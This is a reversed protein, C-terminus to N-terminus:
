LSSIDVAPSRVTAVPPPTTRRLVHFSNSWGIVFDVPEPSWVYNALQTKGFLSILSNNGAIVREKWRSNMITTLIIGRFLTANGSLTNIIKVKDLCRWDVRLLSPLSNPPDPCLIPPDPCLTFFDAFLANQPLSTFENPLSNKNMNAAYTARCQAASMYTLFTPDSVGFRSYWFVLSNHAQIKWIYFWQCTWRQHFSQLCYAIIVQNLNWCVVITRASGTTDSSDTNPVPQLLRRHCLLKFRSLIPSLSENLDFYLNSRKQLTLFHLKTWTSEDVSNFCVCVVLKLSNTCLLCISQKPNFCYDDDPYTAKCKSLNRCLWQESKQLTM